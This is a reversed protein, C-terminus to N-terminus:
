LLDTFVHRYILNSKTYSSKPKARPFSNRVFADCIDKVLYKEIEEIVRQDNVLWGKSGKPYPEPVKFRKGYILVNPRAADGTSPHSSASPQPTTPTTM